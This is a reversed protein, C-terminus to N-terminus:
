RLAELKSKIRSKCYLCLGGENITYSRIKCVKCRRFPARDIKELFDKKSILFGAASSRPFNSEVAEVM